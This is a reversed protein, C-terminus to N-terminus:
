FGRRNKGNKRGDGKEKVIRFGLREFSKIVKSKPADRPFKM